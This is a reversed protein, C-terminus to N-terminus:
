QECKEALHRLAAIQVIMQTARNIRLTVDLPRRLITHADIAVRERIRSCWAAALLSRNRGRIHECICRQVLLHDTCLRHTEKSREGFGSVIVEEISKPLKSDYRFSM